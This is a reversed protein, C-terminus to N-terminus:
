KFRVQLHQTLILDGDTDKEIASGGHKGRDPTEFATKTILYHSVANRTFLELCVVQGAKTVVLFGGNARDLGNWVKAPTAGASFALLFNKIKYSVAIERLEATSGLSLIIPNRAAVTDSCIFRCIEDLCSNASPMRYRESMMTALIAPLCSDITRLNFELTEGRFNKYELEYGNDLLYTVLATPTLDLALLQAKEGDDSIPFGNKLIRFNVLTNQGSANILSSNSGMQSKVSFGVHHGAGAGSTVVASFDSKDAAKASISSAHLINLLEVIAPDDDYIRKIQRSRKKEILERLATCRERIRDKSEAYDTMVGTVPDPISIRVTKQNTNLDYEAFLERTKDTSESNRILRLFEISDGVPQLEGDVVPIVNNGILYVFSYLESIEGINKTKPGENKNNAM